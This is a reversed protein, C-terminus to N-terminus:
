TKRQVCNRNPSTLLIVYILVLLLLASQTSSPSFLSTIDQEESNTYIVDTKKEKSKSETKFIGAIFKQKNRRRDSAFLM